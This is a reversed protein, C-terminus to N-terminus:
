YDQRRWDDDRSEGSLVALVGLVLAGLIGAAATPADRRAVAVIVVIICIVFGAAFIATASM